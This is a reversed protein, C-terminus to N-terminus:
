ARRDCPRRCGSLRSYPIGPSFPVACFVTTTLQQPAVIQLKVNRSKDWKKGNQSGFPCLAPSGEQTPFPHTKSPNQPPNAPHGNGARPLGWLDQSLAFISRRSPTSEYTSRASYTLTQYKVLRETKNSKQTLYDAKIHTRLKRPLDSTSFSVLRLFTQPNSRLIPSDPRTETEFTENQQAMQPSRTSLPSASRGMLFNATIAQVTAGPM